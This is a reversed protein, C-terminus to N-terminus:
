CTVAAPSRSSAASSRRSSSTARAATTPTSTCAPATPRGACTSRIAISTAASRACTAPAAPSRFSTCTASRTRTDRDARLRHVRGHPRRAVGGAQGVRRAKTSSSASRAPPSTPSTSRRRRTSCTPTAAVPQRRVRDIKSDPTWDISAGGRLEGAGVSWKGTTLQARPAAMPRCWSCIRSATKSSLRGSGPPLSDHQRRAAGADMERGEARAADLDDVQRDDAVFMSFAISKGDPSWKRTARRRASTRSRRRRVTLTSGACSSSRGKRSAKPRICCGSATPRGARRAARSSSGTRRHRRRQRDVAGLGM